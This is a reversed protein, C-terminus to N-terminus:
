RSFKVTYSINKAFDGKELHKSTHMLSDDQYLNMKLFSRVVTWCGVFACFACSRLIIGCFHLLFIKFFNHRSFFCFLLCYITTVVLISLWCIFRVWMDRLIGPILLLDYFGPEEVEGVYKILSCWNDMIRIATWIVLSKMVPISSWTLFYFFYYFYYFLLIFEIERDVFELFTCWDKM